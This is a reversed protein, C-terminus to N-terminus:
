ALLSQFCGEVVGKAESIRKDKILQRVEGDTVREWFAQRKAPTLSQKVIGRWYKLLALYEAMEEGYIDEIEARVQRAVIPSAGGTSVAISLDGREMISPVIFSCKEPDDVVNIPIHARMADAAVQANVDEKETCSFVLVVDGLDEKSYEKALWTCSTGDILEELEPILRPSAIRVYAGHSLLTKAKRCAVMGGGVVLTWQDQLNIFIPYYQSMVVPWGKWYDKNGTGNSWNLCNGAEQNCIKIIEEGELSPFM